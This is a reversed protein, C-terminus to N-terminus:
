ETINGTGLLEQVHPQCVALMQYFNSFLCMSLDITLLYSARYNLFLKDKFFFFFEDFESIEFKLM